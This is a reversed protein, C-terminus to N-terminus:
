WSVSAEAMVADGLCLPLDLALACWAEGRCYSEVCVEDGHKLAKRYDIRLSVVPMEVGMATMAAYSLGAASLAEVRAEELWARLGWAVDCRCPRHASSACAQAPHWPGRLATVDAERWGPLWGYAEASAAEGVHEPIQQDGVRALTMDFFHDPHQLVNGAQLGGSILKSCTTDPVFCTAPRRIMADIGFVEQVLAMVRM